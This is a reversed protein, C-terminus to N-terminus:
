RLSKLLDSSTMPFTTNQLVHNRNGYCSYGYRTAKELILSLSSLTSFQSINIGIKVHWYATVGMQIESLHETSLFSSHHPQRRRVSYFIHHQTTKEIRCQCQVTVSPHVMQRANSPQRAIFILSFFQYVPFIILMFNAFVFRSPLLAPKILTTYLLRSQRTQHLRQVIDASLVLNMDAM